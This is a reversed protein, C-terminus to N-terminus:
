IGAVAAPASRVFGGAAFGAVKTLGCGVGSTDVRMGAGGTAQAGM